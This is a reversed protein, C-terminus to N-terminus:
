NNAKLPHHRSLYHNAMLHVDVIQLKENSALCVEIYQEILKADLKAKFANLLKVFEDKLVYRNELSKLKM